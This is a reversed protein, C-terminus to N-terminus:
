KAGDTNMAEWYTEGKSTIVHGLLETRFIKYSIPFTVHCTLSYITGNNESGRNLRMGYPVSVRITWYYFTGQPVSDKYIM